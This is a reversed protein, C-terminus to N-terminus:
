VGRWIYGKAIKGIVTRHINFKEGLSKHTYLKTKLLERIELVDSNSLKANINREGDLCNTKFTGEIIADKTNESHTGWRLHEPNCCARSKCVLPSHCALLERQEGGSHLILALRHARFRKIDGGARCQFYGYGDSNPILRWLMCGDENKPLIRDYFRQRHTESLDM